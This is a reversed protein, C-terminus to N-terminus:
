KIKKMYESQMPSGVKKFAGNQVTYIQLMDVGARDTESYTVPGMTTYPQYAKDGHMENLVKYLNAKTIELGAAKARKIAETTVQAVMIGAAYNHSNAAKDDRGYKKALALQKTTGEGPESTLNFSCTWVYGNCADGALAILDNGGTYHVGLFTLKGKEGYTTATLGLRASDKLM